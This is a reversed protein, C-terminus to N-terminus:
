AANVMMEIWDPAAVADNNIIAVYKGTSALIGQNYGGAFGINKKLSLLKMQPFEKTVMVGLPEEAGNDVFILELNEYTQQMISYLCERTLELGNYAVVVVSVMPKMSNKKATENNVSANM